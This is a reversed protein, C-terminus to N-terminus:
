CGSAPPTTPEVPTFGPCALVPLRPYRPFRPDTQSLRCLYFLSGRASTVIQVHRCRECLGADIRPAQESGRPDDMM